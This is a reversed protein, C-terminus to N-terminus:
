AEGYHNVYEFGPLKSLVLKGLCPLFRGALRTTVYRPGELLVLWDDDKKVYLEREYVLGAFVGMSLNLYFSRGGLSIHKHEATVKDDFQLGLDTDRVGSTIHLRFTGGPIWRDNGEGMMGFVIRNAM